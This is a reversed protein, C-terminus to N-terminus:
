SGAPRDGPSQVQSGPATRRRGGWRRRLRNFGWLGALGIALGCLNSAVDGVSPSHLPVWIQAAEVALGLALLVGAVRWRGAWGSAVLGGLLMLGAYGVAHLPKDYLYAKPVTGAPSLSLGVALACTLAFILLLLRRSRTM